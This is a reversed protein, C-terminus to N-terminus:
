SSLSGRQHCSGWSVLRGAFGPAKDKGVGQSRAGASRVSGQALGRVPDIVVHSVNREHGRTLSLAGAGNCVDLPSKPSHVDGRRLRPSRGAVAGFEGADTGVVAEVGM